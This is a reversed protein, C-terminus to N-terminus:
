LAAAKGAEHRGEAPENALFNQAVKFRSALNSNKYIPIPTNSEM